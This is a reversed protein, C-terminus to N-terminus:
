YSRVSVQSSGFSRAKFDNVLWEKGIEGQISSVMELFTEAAEDLMEENLRGKDWVDLVFQSNFFLDSIETTTM